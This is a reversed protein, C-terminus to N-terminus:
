TQMNKVNRVGEGKFNHVGLSTQITQVLNLLPLYVPLFEIIKGRPLKQFKLLEEGIEIPM